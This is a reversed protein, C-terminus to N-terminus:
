LYEEDDQLQKNVEAQADAKRLLLDRKSELWTVVKDYQSIPIAKYNTGYKNGDRIRPVHFTDVFEKTLKKRDNENLAERIERMMSTVYDLQDDDICVTSQEAVPPAEQPMDKVKDLIRKTSESEEAIARQERPQDILPDYEPAPLERGSLAQPLAYILDKVQLERREMAQQIEHVSFPFHIVTTFFHATKRTGDPEQYTSQAARLQLKLRLPMYGGRTGSMVATLKQIADQVNNITEISGSKLVCSDFGELDPLWVYLYVVEGCQKPNVHKGQVEGGIAYPCTEPACPIPKTLGSRNAIHIDSFKGASDSVLYNNCFMKGGQWCERGIRVCERPPKMFTFPLEIPEKGFRKLAEGNKDNPFTYFNTKDPFTNGFKVGGCKPCAKISAPTKNGCGSCKYVLQGAKIKLHIAERPNDMRKKRALVRETESM